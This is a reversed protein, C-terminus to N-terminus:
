GGINKELFAWVQNWGDMAAEQSYMPRHYYFFGHGAKPYSHFEYNKGLKKLVAETEAVMAQDPNKDEVGFLGLIPCSLGEAYDMPSVPANPKLDEKKMIVSGGWCDIAADFAKTRCATLFVHRGGSCTGFGAVRGNSTPLSRLYAAAAEADAVVDDDNVGGAARMKQMVDEPTGHGFDTYLNPCIALYGHYAFRRATEKTWEDWGPHHHILVVGPFPGQGLPRAFYANTRAGKHGVITVTEAIMGEYMDTTYPKM